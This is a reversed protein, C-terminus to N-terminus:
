QSSVKRYRLFPVHLVHLLLMVPQSMSERYYAALEDELCGLVDHASKKALEDIHQLLRFPTCVTGAVVCPLADLACVVEAVPLGSCVKETRWKATEAVLKLAEVVDFKRARLM